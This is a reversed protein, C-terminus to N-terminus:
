TLSANMECAEPGLSGHSYPLLLTREHPNRELDREVEGEYTSFVPEVIEWLRVLVEPSMFDRWNDEMASSLLKAYPRFRTQEKMKSFVTTQEQRLGYTIDPVRITHPMIVADQILKGDEIKHLVFRIERNNGQTSVPSRKLKVIIETRKEHLGKGTRIHIPVGALDGRNFTVTCSLFTPTKQFNQSGNGLKELSQYTGCPSDLFQGWVVNRISVDKLVNLMSSTVFNRDADERLAEAPQAMMLAVPLLPSLFMDSGVGCRMDVYTKARDNLHDNEDAIITVSEVNHHNWLLSLIPDERRMTFLQRIGIKGLYHDVPFIANEGFVERAQDFLEQCTRACHGFPKEILLIGKHGDQLLRSGRIGELMPQVVSPAVSAIVARNPANIMIENNCLDSITNWSGPDTVDASAIHFRDLFEQDQTNAADSICSQYDARSPTRRALGLIRTDQHLKGDQELEFLSPAIERKMWDGTGGPILIGWPSVKRM